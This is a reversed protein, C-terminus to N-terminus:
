TVLSAIILQEFLQTGEGQTCLDKTFMKDQVTPNANYDGQPVFNRLNIYKSEPYKLCNEVQELNELGIYDTFATILSLDSSKPMDKSSEWWMGGGLNYEKVYEAKARSVLVNDYTFLFRSAPDYNWAAMADLDTKEGNRSLDKYGKTGSKWSGGGVGLYSKGIGDTNAFARGYLPMGMVLKSSDVGAKIYYQISQDGSAEGEYLNSHYQSTNSWPGAYDYCMINWFSVFPDMAKVLNEEFHKAGAPAAVTLELREYPIHVRKAYEDLELRLERLLQIYLEPDGPRTPYEWDIDLGDLGLDRVLRVASKVFNRRQKANRIGKALNTTYTYGGISLIIKLNRNKKKLEFFQNLSGQLLKTKTVRKGRPDSGRIKLNNRNKPTSKKRRTVDNSSGDKEYKM